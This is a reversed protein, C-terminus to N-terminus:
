AFARHQDVRIEAIRDLDVDIRKGVALLHEDAAHHLMDFLRAHMRAVEAQEKGGCESLGAITASSSRWVTSSARASFTTPKIFTWNAIWCSSM